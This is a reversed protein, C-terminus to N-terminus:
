NCIQRRTLRDGRAVHCVGTRVRAREVGTNAEPGTAPAATTSRSRVPFEDVGVTVVSAVDNMGDSYDLVVRVSPLAIAADINPQSSPSTAAELLMYPLLLGFPWKPITGSRLRIRSPGMTRSRPPLGLSVAGTSRNCTTSSDSSNAGDADVSSLIPRLSRILRRLPLHGSSKRSASFAGEEDEGGRGIAMQFGESDDPLKVGASGRPRLALKLTLELAEEGGLSLTSDRDSDNDNGNAPIDCGSATAAAAAAARRGVCRALCLTSAGTRVGFSKNRGRNLDPDKTERDQVLGLSLRM